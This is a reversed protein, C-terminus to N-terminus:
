IFNSNVIALLCGSCVVNKSVIPMVCAASFGKQFSSITSIFIHCFFASMQLIVEGLCILFLLWFCYVNEYHQM